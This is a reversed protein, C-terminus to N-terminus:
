ESRLSDVPNAFILRLTHYGATLFAVAFTLFIGIAFADWKIDVRYVYFETFLADMIFYAAPTSVVFGLLLLWLYEMTFIKMINAKSAGLVKRVGVEKQKRNAVFSVLGFLGIAGILIALGAFLQFLVFIEQETEYLEAINDDLFDYELVFEPLVKEWEDELHSLASKFSEGELKIAAMYYANRRSALMVTLDVEDHLAQTHFDEIVGKVNATMGWLRLENGLIDYPDEFGLKKALTENVLFREVSDTFVLGEGALLKIGYTDLFDPDVLKVQAENEYLSDATKLHFNSNWTSGSIAGSNSFTVYKIDPHQMLGNKLVQLKEDDQAFTGFEVVAEKEIGLNAEQLYNLQRMLLITCVILIQSIAFQAIVLGKRVNLKKGFKNDINNKIARVPDLVSLMFSPYLGAFLTVGVMISACFVWVNPNSFDPSIGEGLVPALLRAAEGSLLLALGLAMITILFTETMFYLMVHRKSSGLTKRIGVERARTFILSANLNIFNICATIILMIGIAILLVLVQIPTQAGYAGWDSSFHIDQLNQVEYKLFQAQDGRYKKVFDVLRENIKAPTEGKPIRFYVEHSSSTSGWEDNDRDDWVTSNSAVLHFPIVTNYPPDKVIGGVTLLYENDLTLQKGMADTTGFYKVALKESIVMKGPENLVMPSGSVWQYKFLDFFGPEAFTLMSEQEQFKKREGDEEVIVVGLLQDDVFVVPGLEPFDTRLAEPLPRPVGRNTETTGYETDTSVIRYIEEPHSHYTDFSYEFSIKLYIIFASLIGLFLGILNISTHLRNRSFNRFSTVIYNKLM